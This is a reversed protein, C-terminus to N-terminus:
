RAPSFPPPATSPATPKPCCVRTSKGSTRSIGWEDHEVAAGDARLRAALARADDRLAEARSSQLFSPPAGAFRAFVPSARPDRPDAGGLYLSAIEAFRAVPVLADRRALARLSPAAGTLDAWCASPSRRAPSRAARPSSGPSSPSALGGGASDGGLRSPGAIGALLAAWTARRGRARRSRCTRALRYDSM